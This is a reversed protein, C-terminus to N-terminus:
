IAPQEVQTVTSTIRTIVPVIFFIKSDKDAIVPVEKGDPGLKTTVIQIADAGNVEPVSEINETANTLTEADTIKPDKVAKSLVGTNPDTTLIDTAVEKGDKFQIVKVITGTAPICKSPDQAKLVEDINECAMGILVGKPFQKGDEQKLTLDQGLAQKVVELNHAPEKIEPTEPAIKDAGPAVENLDPTAAKIESVTEKVEPTVEDTNPVAKDATPNFEDLDPIINDLGPIIGNIPDLVDRKTNPLAGTDIKPIAGTDVKPTDIDATDLKPVTPTDLEPTPTDLKPVTPTDLEPVTPTDLKPVTTDLEPVPTDLKPVTPTDLKPAPTDLKPVTGVKPLEEATVPLTDGTKPATEELTSVTGKLEKVPEDISPTAGDANPIKAQADTVAGELGPVIEKVGPVTVAGKINQTTKEVDLPIPSDGSPATETGLKLNKLADQIVDRKSAANGNNTLAVNIDEVEVTALPGAEPTDLDLSSLLPDEPLDELPNFGSFDELGGELDPVKHSALDQTVDSGPKIIPAASVALAWVVWATYLVSPRM